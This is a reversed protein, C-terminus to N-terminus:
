YHKTRIKCIVEDSNEVSNPGLLAEDPDQLDSGMYYTVYDEMLKPKSVRSSRRFEDNEETPNVEEAYATNDAQNVDEKNEIIIM